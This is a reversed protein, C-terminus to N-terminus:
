TLSELDRFLWGDAGRIVGVKVRETVGSVRTVVAGSDSVIETKEQTMEIEFYAQGGPAPLSKARGLSVPASAYHRKTRVFTRADDETKQCFQCRPDSFAPLLGAKPTTWAENLLEFYFRVFAEAGAPTDQRAAEPVVPGTPTPSATASAVPTVSATAGSASAPASDVGCAGSALMVGGAAVGPLWRARRTM